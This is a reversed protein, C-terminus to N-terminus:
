SVETILSSGLDLASAREVGQPPQPVQLARQLDQQRVMDVLLAYSINAKDITLTIGFEDSQQIVELAKAGKIVDYINKYASEAKEQTSFFLSSNSASNAPVIILQFM